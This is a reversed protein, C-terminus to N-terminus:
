THWRGVVVLTVPPMFAQFVYMHDNCAAPPPQPWLCLLRGHKWTDGKEGNGNITCHVHLGLSGRERSWKVGLFTSASKRIEPDQM